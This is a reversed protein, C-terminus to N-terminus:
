ECACRCRRTKVLTLLKNASHCAQRLWGSSCRPAKEIRSYSDGGCAGEGCLVDEGGCADATVMHGIIAGAALFSGGFSRIERAGRLLGIPLLGQLQAKKRCIPAQVWRVWYFEIRQRSNQVKRPSIDNNRAGDLPFLGFCVCRIAFLISEWLVVGAASAIM